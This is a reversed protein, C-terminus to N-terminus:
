CCSFHLAWLNPDVQMHSEIWDAIASELRGMDSHFFLGREPKAQYGACHAESVVQGAMDKAIDYIDRAM